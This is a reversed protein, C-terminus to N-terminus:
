HAGVVHKICFYYFIIGTIVLYEENVIGRVIDTAFHDQSYM